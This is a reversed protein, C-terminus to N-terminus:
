KGGGHWSSEAETMDLGVCRGSGSVPSISTSASADGGVEREVEVEPAEVGVRFEDVSWTAGKFDGASSRVSEIFSLMGCIPSFTSSSGADFFSNEVATMGDGGRGAFGWALRLRHILNWNHNLVYRYSIDKAGDIHDQDM